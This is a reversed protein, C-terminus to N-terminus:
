MDNSKEEKKHVNRDKNNKVIKKNACKWTMIKEEKKTCMEM